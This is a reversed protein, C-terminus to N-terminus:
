LTVREPNRLGQLLRTTQNLQKAYPNDKGVCAFATAPDIGDHACANVWLEQVRSRLKNVLRAKKIKLHLDTYM